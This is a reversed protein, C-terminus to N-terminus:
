APGEADPKFASSRVADTDDMRTLAGLKTM